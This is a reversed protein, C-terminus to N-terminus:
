QGYVAKFSHNQGVYRITAKYLDHQTEQRPKGIDYSFPMTFFPTDITIAREIDELNGFISGSLIGLKQDVHSYYGEIDLEAFPHIRFGGYYSSEEKGTNTLFYNPARLDGQKTHGGGAMFSLWKFGKRLEVEGRGARGNSRGILRVKGNLPTSLEMKAPNTLIVGGLADPGFRVTAAGKIVEIEDVSALDIEAAHDEGWNQFEHRIGNNITLVRNSHLGHIIPKVVNQGSRLTSVGTIKSVADGLSETGSAAIDASSIKTTTISQLNSQSSEAEVIVSELTYEEPALYIELFPHHFDHHHNVAKYGLFSFLLDYEKECLDVFEFYGEEDTTTGL